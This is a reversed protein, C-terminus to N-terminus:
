LSVAWIMNATVNETVKVTFATGTGRINVMGTETVTVTVTVPVLDGDTM